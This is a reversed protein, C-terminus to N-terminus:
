QKEEMKRFKMVIHFGDRRFSEFALAKNDEINRDLWWDILSMIEQETIERRDDTMLNPSKKSQRAIYAKNLAPCIKYDKASM